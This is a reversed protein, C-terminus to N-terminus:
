MRTLFSTKNGMPFSVMPLSSPRHHEHCESYFLQNIKIMMLDRREESLKRMKKAILKSFISCEDDEENNHQPVTQPIAQDTQKNQPEPNYQRKRSTVLNSKLQSSISEQNTSDHQFSAQSSYKQELSSEDSEVIINLEDSDDQSQLHQKDETNNPITCKYVTGLFSDMLSYAFWTPRYVESKMESSESKKIKTRYGRYAAMLSEKKKKLEQVTCPEGLKNKIDDWADSLRTKNRHSRHKPDWICPHTQYLELFRMVTENTWDM